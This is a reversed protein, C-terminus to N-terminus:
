TKLMRTVKPIFVVERHHSLHTPPAPTVPDVAELGPVEFVPPPPPPNSEAPPEPITMM